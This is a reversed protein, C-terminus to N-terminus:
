MIWMEDEEGLGVYLTFIIFCIHDNYLKDYRQEVIKWFRRSIRNM